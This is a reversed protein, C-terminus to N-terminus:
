QKVYKQIYIAYATGGISTSGFGGAATPASVGALPPTVQIVEYSMNNDKFSCIGQAVVASPTSQNAVINYIKADATNTKGSQDTSSTETFTYTGSLTTNVGNKDTQVVTYSKNENFTATIKAVNFPAVTLGYAVNAGESVWTGVIADKPQPQIIDGDEGKCATFVLTGAILLLMFLKKM